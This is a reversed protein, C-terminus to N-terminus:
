NVQVYLCPGQQMIATSYIHLSAGNTSYFYWVPKCPLAHLNRQLGITNTIYALLNRYWINNCVTNRLRLRMMKASRSGFRFAAGVESGARAAEIVRAGFRVYLM